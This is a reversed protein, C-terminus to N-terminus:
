LLGEIKWNNQINCGHTDNHLLCGGAQGLRRQLLRSGRLRRNERISMEIL